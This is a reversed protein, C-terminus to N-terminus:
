PGKKGNTGGTLGNNVTWRVPASSMAHTSTGWPASGTGTGWPQVASGPVTYAKANSFLGICEVHEAESAINGDGDLRDVCMYTQNYLIRRNCIKCVKTRNPIFKM